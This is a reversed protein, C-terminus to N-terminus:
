PRDQALWRLSIATTVMMPIVPVLGTIVRHHVADVFFGGARVPPNQM